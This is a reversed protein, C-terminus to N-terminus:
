PHRWYRLAIPIVGLSLYLILSWVGGITELSKGRGPVEAALFRAGLVASILVLTGLLFTATLSFAIGRAAEIAFVATLTMVVLWVGVARKRGWLFSYTEVGAEEDSPTRIKRGIELVVGNCYSVLLFWLLGRPPRRYGLPVWDCATTYLDVLPMIAMHSLMYTIPRSKLWSRLFFERSMLGLYTWTVVLLPVLRPSLWAALLLQLVICAAWIWALERLQILGRPVPRYPRFRSDEDFDKFEDALRLQLFTLFSNAFAVFCPKWGPLASAGRLLASYSVASLSFALIIPSHAFIPFRERQYVWWRNAM